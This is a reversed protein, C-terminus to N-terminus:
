EVRNKLSDAMSIRIVKSRSILKSLEYTFVIAILGILISVWGLKAPITIDMKSTIELLINDVASIILPISIAYGLIVLIFNGNLILSYIKKRSYGLIKMLSINARNEEIVLSTVIYVIILGIILAVGGIIGVIMRLPEMMNKYGDVIDSIKLTSALKGREIDMEIESMLGSYGGEPYKFTSNFRDIPMFIFDGIFTEAISDVVIDAKKSDIKNEVSISDGAELMLKDALPRTIIVREFSLLKGGNDKLVILRANGQIGQIKFSIRKGDSDEASFPMVSTKEGSVPKDTQISNLRYFYNYKYVNIYSDKIMGNMSDSLSFGFLLLMSAFAVGAVMLITRPINRVLERIKFKTDFRFRNLKVKKEIFGVKVKNGGGRILVLPSMCLAKMVVFATTPVLFAFPLILSFIISVANYEVTFDPVNYQIYISYFLTKVLMLGPITGLISGSISLIVAYSLYHKLIEIKRYGLAYLTGIQVFEGKLLRWLVVAILFCTIILIIVPIIKGAKFNAEADGDIGSIRPNDESNVWKLIINGNNLYDKLQQINNANFKVSFYSLSDEFSKFDERSVVAIGFADPNHLLDSETKLPNIYDPSAMYGVLKFDVGDIKVYQGINLNHAEAFKPDVLIEKGHKIKSGKSAVYRDLKETEMLIRLTTETDYKYDISKREELIIDFKKELLDISELPKQISFYADEVMNETRFADIGDMINPGAISFSVYLMCSLLVLFFAGIYRSKHEKMTRLVKKNLVM